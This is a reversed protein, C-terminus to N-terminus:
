YVLKHSKSFVRHFRFRGIEDLKTARQRLNPIFPQAVTWIPTAMALHGNLHRGVQQNKTRPHLSLIPFHLWISCLHLAKTRQAEPLSYAVQGELTWMIWSPQHENEGLQTPVLRLFTIRTCSPSHYAFGWLFQFVFGPNLSHCLFPRIEDRCGRCTWRGRLKIWTGGPCHPTHEYQHTKEDPARSQQAPSLHARFAPGIFWETNGVIHLSHGTSPLCGACM